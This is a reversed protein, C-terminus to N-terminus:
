IPCIPSVTAATIIVRVANVPDFTDRYKEWTIALDPLTFQQFDIWGFRVQRVNWTENAKPNIIAAVRGAIRGDKYALFYEAECFEFAKNIEPNFTAVDDSRLNPVYCPHGKYYESAFDIFTRMEKPSTVKKVVTPM